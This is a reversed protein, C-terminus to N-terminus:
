HLEWYKKENLIFEILVYMGSKSISELKEKTPIMVGTSHVITDFFTINEDSVSNLFASYYKKEVFLEEYQKNHKYYKILQSLMPDKNKNNKTLDDWRGMKRLHFKLSNELLTRLLITTSIPYWAYHKNRSIRKIEHALHILGIDASDNSQLANWKLEEFFKFVKISQVRQDSSNQERKIKTDEKKDDQEGKRNQLFSNDNEGNNNKFENNRIKEVSIEPEIELILTNFDEIAEVHNRTSLENTLFAAKAIYYLGKNLINEGYKSIPKLHEDYSIELLNKASKGEYYKSNSSFVRLFRNIDLGLPDLSDKEIERWLPLELAYHLLNYNQISTKVKGKTSGTNESIEEISEGALYRNAFFSLKAQTPWSRIGKIHRKYLASQVVTRDSVVDVNISKINSKTNESIIPVKRDTTFHGMLLKCACIRRNGELVVYKSNEKYAIIREGPLLGEDENIGKAITLVDENKILYNKISEETPSPLSVFRPNQPDLFLETLLIREVIYNM